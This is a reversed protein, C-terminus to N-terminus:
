WFTALLFYEKDDFGYMSSRSFLFLVQVHMVHCRSRRIFNDMVIIFFLVGMFHFILLLTFFFSPLCALCVSCLSYLM